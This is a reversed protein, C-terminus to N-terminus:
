DVLYVHQNDWIEMIIDKHVHNVHRLHQLIQLLAKQVFSVNWRHFVAVMKYHQFNDLKVRLVRQQVLSIKVMLYRFVTIDLNVLLVVMPELLTLINEPMVNFAGLIVLEVQLTVQGM